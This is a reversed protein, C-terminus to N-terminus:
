NKIFPKQPYLKKHDTNSKDILESEIENINHHLSYKEVLPKFYKHGRDSLYNYFLLLLEYGSIKARILNIYFRKEPETLFVKQEM